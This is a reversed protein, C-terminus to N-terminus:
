CEFQLLSPSLILIVNPITRLSYLLTLTLSPNLSINFNQTKSM